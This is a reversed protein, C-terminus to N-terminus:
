GHLRLSRMDMQRTERGNRVGKAKRIALALRNGMARRPGGAKPAPRCTLDLAYPASVQRLLAKVISTSVPLM